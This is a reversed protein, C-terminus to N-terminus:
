PSVSNQQQAVVVHEGVRIGPVAAIRNQLWTYRIAALIWAITDGDELPKHVDVEIAPRVEDVACGTPGPMSPYSTLEDITRTAPPPIEADAVLRSGAPNPLGNALTPAGSLKRNPSDRVAIRADPDVEAASAHGVKTILDRDLTDTPVETAATIGPRQDPSVIARAIRDAQEECASAPERKGVLNM